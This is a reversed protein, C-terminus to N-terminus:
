SSSGGSRVNGSMSVSEAHSDTPDLSLVRVRLGEALAQLRIEQGNQFKVADRHTNVEMSTQVFRVQEEPGVQLQKQLSEPIGTLVVSAGHPVCVATKCGPLFIGALSEKVMQWLSQTRKANKVTELDQPSVLGVTQTGFRYVVLTEGEVALRNRYEALSYDCM